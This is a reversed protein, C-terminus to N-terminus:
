LWCLAYRSSTRPYSDCDYHVHSRPAGIGTSRDQMCRPHCSHRSLERAGGKGVIESYIVFSCRTLSMTSRTHATSPMAYSFSMQKQIRFRDCDTM